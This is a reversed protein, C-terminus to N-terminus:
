YNTRGAPNHPDPARAASAPETPDTPRPLIVESMVNSVSQWTVGGDTSRDLLINTCSFGGNPEFNTLTTYVTGNGDAHPLLYTDGQPNSGATPLELPTSWASHTGDSRADAYSVWPVASFSDFVTWM